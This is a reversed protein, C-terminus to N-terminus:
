DEWEETRNKIVQTFKKWTEIRQIRSNQFSYKSGYLKWSKQFTKLKKVNKM